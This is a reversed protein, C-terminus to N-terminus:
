SRAALTILIVKGGDYNQVLQRLFSQVLSPAYAYKSVSPGEQISVQQQGLVHLVHAICAIRTKRVKAATVGLQALAKLETDRDVLVDRKLAEVKDLVAEVRRLALDWKLPLASLVESVAAEQLKMWADKRNTLVGGGEQIYTFMRMMCTNMAASASAHCPVPLELKNTKFHEIVERL